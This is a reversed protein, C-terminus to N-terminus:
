FPTWGTILLAGFIIVSAATGWIEGLIKVALAGILDGIIWATIARLFINWDTPLMMWITVWGMVRPVLGMLAGILFSPM